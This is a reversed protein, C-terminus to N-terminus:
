SSNTGATNINNAPRVTTSILKDALMRVQPALKTMGDYKRVDDLMSNTQKKNTITMRMALTLLTYAVWWRCM